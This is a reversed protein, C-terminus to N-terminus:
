LLTYAVSTINLSAPKANLLAQGCAELTAGTTIIDDVLLLHKQHLVEPTTLSFTNQLINMRETRGKHTQTATSAQKVLVGDVVPVQLVNSIGKALLFAQNYGRQQQKRKHLPVPIIANIHNFRESQLMASGLIQGMWRGAEQNGQYKVAQMLHQVISPRTFYLLSGAAKVPIRGYFVKEVPNGEHQLFGTYPLMAMCEACIVDHQQLQDNGCGACVHPFFLHLFASLWM